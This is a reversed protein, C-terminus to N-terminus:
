QLHNENKHEAETKFAKKHSDQKTTSKLKRAFMQLNFSILTIATHSHTKKTRNKQLAPDSVSFVTYKM